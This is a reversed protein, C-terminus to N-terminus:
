SVVARRLLRNPSGPAVGIAYVDITLPGSAPAAVVADFGHEPGYGPYIRAIDSRPNDAPGLNHGVGNVYVHVDVPRRVDPDLAWGAVRVGGSVRRVIDVHGLPDNTVAVNRCGLESSPGGQPDLARVCVATPNGPRSWGLLVNFGSNAPAGPYRAVVDPRPQDTFGASVTTTGITVQLAVRGARDPDWAWGAVRIGGPERRVLDLVGVPAGPNSFTACGIRRNVGPGKNIAYVCVELSGTGSWPVVTDFGWRTPEVGLVRAVDPRHRDAPGLNVGSGNLYAHITVPELRDLDLAWGAIRVGGPVREARDLAVYPDAAVSRWGILRNGGPGTNIGYVRVDATPGPGTATIVRDFGVSWTLGPYTRTVDPRARNTPGLNTGVGNVYVHVTTPGSANPDAVWGAVRYGGPVARVVDVSGFPEGQLCSANHFRTGNDVLAATSCTADLQWPPTCTVVRCVIPGLCAIENHCQGYRFGTCGAKRRNCDGRACGCPTGSCSGSCIGNSGCGCGGCRSNCDLYYRAGGGCFESGDVKWWGAVVTGAPCTNRGTMTCCFETYGDCCKSGCPCTQGSCGCVAAFAPTRELASLTPAVALASGGVAVRRLLDRRGLRRGVVAAARDALRATATV